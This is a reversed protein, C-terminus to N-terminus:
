AQIRSKWEDIKEPLLQKTEADLPAGASAKKLRRAFTALEYLTPHWRFIKVIEDRIAEMENAIQNATLDSNVKDKISELLLLVDTLPDKGSLKLPSSPPSSKPSVSVLSPSATSPSTVPPQLTSPATPKSISPPSPAPTSSEDKTHLNLNTLHDISTKILGLDSMMKNIVGSDVGSGSSGAIGKVIDGLDEVKAGIMDTFTMLNEGLSRPIDEKLTEIAMQIQALKNDIKEELEVMKDELREFVTKKQAM